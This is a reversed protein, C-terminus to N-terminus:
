VGVSSAPRNPRWSGGALNFDRAVGRVAVQRLVVKVDRVGRRGGTRARPTLVRSGAIAISAVLVSRVPAYTLIRAGEVCAFGAQLSRSPKAPRVRGFGRWLAPTEGPRRLRCRVVGASFRVSTWSGHRFRRGNGAFGGLVRPPAGAPSAAAVTFASASAVRLM